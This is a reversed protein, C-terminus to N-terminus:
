WGGATTYYVDHLYLSLGDGPLVGVEGRAARVPDRPKTVLVADGDQRLRPVELCPAFNWCAARVADREELWWEDDDVSVQPFYAQVAHILHDDVLEDVRCAATLYHTVARLKFAAIPFYVRPRPGPRYGLM